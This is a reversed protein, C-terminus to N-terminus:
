KGHRKGKWIEAAVAKALRREADSQTNICPNELHEAATFALPKRSRWWAIAAREVNSPM